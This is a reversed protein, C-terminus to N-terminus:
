LFASRVRIRATSRAWSCVARDALSTCASALSLLPAAGIALSGTSRPCRSPQDCCSSRLRTPWRSRAACVATVARRRPRSSSSRRRRARPRGCRAMPSRRSGCRRPGCPDATCSSSEERSSGARTTCRSSREACSPDRAWSVTWCLTETVPPQALAVPAVGLLSFLLLSWQSVASVMAMSLGRSLVFWARDHSSM